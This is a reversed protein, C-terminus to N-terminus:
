ENREWPWRPRRRRTRALAIGGGAAVVAAAVVAVGFWGTAIRAAVGTATGLSAGTFVAGVWLGGIYALGVALGIWLANVAHPRVSRVVTALALAFVGTASLSAFVGPVQGLGPATVVDTETALTVVGLGLIFLAFFGTTAFLVTLGPGVGPQPEGDHPTM